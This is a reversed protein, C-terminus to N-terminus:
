LAREMPSAIAHRTTVDVIRLVQDMPRGAAEQLSWGTMKEAVLNLFSITGSTDTCAVADAISNLTVQAREKEIFLAKEMINREIAYRLARLLGRADIQGKI